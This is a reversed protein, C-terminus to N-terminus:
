KPFRYLRISQLQLPKFVLNGEKSLWLSDSHHLTTCIHSMHTFVGWGQGMKSPVPSPDVENSIYLHVWTNLHWLSLPFSISLSLATLTPATHHPTSPMPVLCATRFSWISQHRSQTAYSNIVTTCVNTRTWLNTMAHLWHETECSWSLMRLGCKVVPSFRLPESIQGNSSPLARVTYHQKQAHTCETNARKKTQSNGAEVKLSVCMEQCLLIPMLAFRILAYASKQKQRCDTVTKVAGLFTFSQSKACVCM